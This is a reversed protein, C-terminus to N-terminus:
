TIVEACRINIDTAEKLRKRRKYTMGKLRGGPGGEEEDRQARARLGQLTHLRNDLAHVGGTRGSTATSRSEPSRRRARRSRASGSSRRPTVPRDRRPEASKPGGSRGLGLVPENTLNKLKMMLLVSSKRNAYLKYPTFETVIRYPLTKGMESSADKKGFLDLIKMSDGAFVNLDFLIKLKKSGLPFAM